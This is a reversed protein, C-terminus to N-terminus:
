SAAASGHPRKRNLWLILCLIVLTAISVGGAYAGADMSAYPLMACWQIVKRITHLILWAPASALMGVTSGFFAACGACLAFLMAWSIFPVVIINVLPAVLSLRGFTSLILPTTMIQASLSAAATSRITMVEPLFRLWRETQPSVYILGVTALFSLQFGADYRVVMPNIAVMVSAAFVLANTIRSVRGIQRAILVVLGMIGARVVSAQAGTMIIFLAIAGCSIWFARRRNIGIAICVNLIAAAIITINFGSLAIIHSTGTAQFAQLLDTPMGRKAGLLLGGAFAAEPETLVNGLRDVFGSKFEFIKEVLWNGKSQALVTIRPFGCVALIGQRELYKDYAFDEVPEPRRLSCTVKLEDGYEYQPYLSTSVLVKGETTQFRKDRIVSIHGLTLKVQNQRTDPEAIVIGQFEVKGHDAFSAISNQSNKTGMLAVRFFGLACSIGLLSIILIKKDKYFFLLGVASGVAISIPLLFPVPVFSAISIGGLFGIM